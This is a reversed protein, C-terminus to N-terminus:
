HGFRKLYEAYFNCYRNDFVHMLENFADYVLIAIKPIHAIVNLSFIEKLHELSNESNTKKYNEVTFSGDARRTYMSKNENVDIM